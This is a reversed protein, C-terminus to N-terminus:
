NVLQLGQGVAITFDLDIAVYDGFVMVSVLVIRKYFRGFYDHFKVRRYLEFLRDVYREVSVTFLNM